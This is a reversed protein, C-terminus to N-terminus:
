AGELHSRLAAVRIAGAAFQEHRSSTNLPIPPVKRMEMALGPLMAQTKGYGESSRGTSRGTIYSRVADSVGGNTCLDEFLHRWGHNPALERRSLGVKFRLWESINAQSRPPFIRRDASGGLGTIFEILGEKILEPHIPVTRKSYRNKLTKGGATTLRYFWDEGVQFFDGPTLQAVENIRAGSYACMWPLWRLEPATERRAALLAIAAEEMTFARDESSVTQFNPAEVVELPNGTAYYKNLSQKRLWNLVTRVNQLRQKISNNSLEGKEMMDLKWAEAEDATVTTADDSNRFASFEIVATRYKRVTGERLPVADKGLSRQRVQEDIVATFTPRKLGTDQQPRHPAPVSLHTTPSPSSFEPYKISASGVSYDGEAKRLNIQAAEDLASAIIELLRGRQERPISLGKETLKIDVFAGFRRELDRLHSQPSGIALPHLRGDRALSNLELVQTWMSATGPEEDFADIFVHHLEGALAYMQKHTLPTPASRMVRWASQLTAYAEGFREKATARDGTLLSTKVVTGVKVPRWVGAVLLHITRGSAKSVLDQPTRVRLYYRNGIRAPSPMALFM